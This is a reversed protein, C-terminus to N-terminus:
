RPRSPFDSEGPTFELRLDPSERLVVVRDNADIGDDRSWVRPVALVSDSTRTLLRLGECRYRYASDAGLPTCIVSPPLALDKVTFVVVGRRDELLAATLRAEYTGVSEAYEDTAAFVGCAVLLGLLVTNLTSLWLPRSRVPNAM